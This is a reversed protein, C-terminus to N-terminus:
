NCGKHLSYDAGTSCHENMHPAASYTGVDNLKIRYKGWPQCYPLEPDTAVCRPPLPSTMDWLDLHILDSPTQEAANFPVDFETGVFADSARLLEMAFCSCVRSIRNDAYRYSDHEPMTYVDALRMGREAIHLLLEERRILKTQSFGLRNM